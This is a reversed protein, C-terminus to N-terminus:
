QQEWTALIDALVHPERTSVQVASPTRSFRPAPAPQRVNDIDVWAGRAVHHPHQMAESLRLVPAFCVDSGELLAAWDNRTRAAFIRTFEDRLAPWKARDYQAGRLSETVNVRDCLQAFFQPEIPGLSIHEGDSTQYVGYFPAGGDLLNSGRQETFTGKRAHSAFTTMLALTGDTIAADIVQGSGSQTREHLAALIGCVLFMSGGAYDGILNLPIAPPGDAAGIAHLAGTIAIYNIDHGAAQALPGHQGWGTMRGYILRPNREAIVDPGLGLREMVGPRFGEVLVDARDILALVEDRAAPDKLDAVVVKRGRGTINNADGVGAASRDITIVDAGMDSLLMCAFPAPGLGAFEVVRVGALPGSSPVSHADRPNM